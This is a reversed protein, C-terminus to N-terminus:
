WQLLNQHHAIEQPLSIMQGLAWLFQSGATISTLTKVHLNTSQAACSSHTFLSDSVTKKKKKRNEPHDPVEPVWPLFLLSMGTQPQRPCIPYFAALIKHNGALLHVNIKTLWHVSLTSVYIILFVSIQKWIDPPRLSTVPNTTNCIPSRLGAQMPHQALIGASPTWLGWM